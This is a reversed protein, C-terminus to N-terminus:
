DGLRRQVRDPYVKTFEFAAVLAGIPIIIRLLGPRTSPNAAAVTASIGGVLFALGWVASVVANIRKFASTDWVEPPTQARAYPETFPVGIAVSGFALVVLGAHAIAQGYRGIDSAVSDSVLFVVLGLALFFVLSWWDLLKAGRERSFRYAVVGVAVVVAWVVAERPSSPQAREVLAYVVWPLFGLYLDRM